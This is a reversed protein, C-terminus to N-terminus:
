DVRRRDTNQTSLHAPDIDSTASLDAILLTEGTGARAMVNGDPGVLTSLGGFRLGADSGCYNAYAITMATECARAPVIVNSVNDFGAPNATPVLLLEVGRESLARVHEAFEVDYCILLGARIGGLDFDCLRDGPQFSAREMPGFLQVKRYHALKRGTADFCSAANYVTEGAREAWGITLGCGAKRCLDSLRQEWAGGQQQAQEAHLVPQNYGPLYLEPFVVMGAGAAAASALIRAITAFATADDGAVSRTQFVALHMRASM